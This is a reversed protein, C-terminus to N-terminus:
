IATLSQHAARRAPAQLLPDLLFIAVRRDYDSERAGTLPRASTASTRAEHRAPGRSRTQEPWQGAGRGDNHTRSRAVKASAVANSQTYPRARFSTMRPAASRTPSGEVALLATAVQETRPAGPGSDDLERASQHAPNVAACAIGHRHPPFRPAELLGRQSMPPRLSAPPPPLRPCRWASRALAVLRTPRKRRRAENRLRTARLKEEPAAADGPHVHSSGGSDQEGGFV